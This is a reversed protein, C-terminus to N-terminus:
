FILLFVVIADIIGFSNTLNKFTSVKHESTALAIALMNSYADLFPPFAQSMEFLRIVFIFKHVDNNM